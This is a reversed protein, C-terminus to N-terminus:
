IECGGFHFQRVSFTEPFPLSQTSVFLFVANQLFISVGIASILPALRAAHRLPKYAVREVAFGVLASAAMGSLIGGIVQFSAPLTKVIPISCFGLAAFAGIMFIESHAFNIMMLIGYVLTYGLAILSYISGLTIGNVLQQLLM